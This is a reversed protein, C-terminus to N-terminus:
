NQGYGCGEDVRKLSTAVTIGERIETVARLRDGAELDCGGACNTSGDVSLSVPAGGDVSLKIRDDTRSLVMGDYVAPTGANASVFSHAALITGMLLMLLTMTGIIKKYFM